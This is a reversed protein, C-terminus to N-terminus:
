FTPKNHHKGNKGGGNHQRPTQNNIDQIGRQAIFVQETQENIIVGTGEKESKTRAM